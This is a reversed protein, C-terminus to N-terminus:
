EGRYFVMGCLIGSLLGFIHATNNVGGGTFGNYLTFVVMMIIQHSSIGRFYGRHAYVMYGVLGVLGFVAGSAGASVVYSAKVAYYILSAVNGVLGTVLYSFCFIVGGLERELIDGLFYLLLMNFFLHEFGFHMFMSTILRYYEHEQLIAPAYLAGKEVMFGTNLSSGTLTLYLFFLVNLGILVITVKPLSSWRFSRM